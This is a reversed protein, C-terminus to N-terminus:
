DELFLKLETIFQEENEVIKGEEGPDKITLVAFKCNSDKIGFMYDSSNSKSEVKSPYILAAGKFKDKEKLSFYYSYSHLQRIDENDVDENKYTMKKFKADLVYIKGTKKHTLVFDPYNNKHYFTEDYFSIVKQSEIDWEDLNFRMLNYLYMEWLFSADILFGSIGSFSKSDSNNLDKNGLLVKAYELPKKYDSYLSNYLCKDKLIDNITKKSPRSGSYLELLHHEFKSLNPLTTNSLSIKCSKIATYLVDVINQIELQKPYKYTIKKDTSFIDNRIYEEIDVNGKISYGRDKLYVYKKPIDKFAVKRLSILFLYQILLSYISENEKANNKADIDAYIGCCSNLIRKFFVDSYDTKIELQPLKDDFNIVGCYLGTLISYDGNKNDIKYILSDEKTNRKFKSYDATIVHIFKNEDNLSAMNMNKNEIKKCIDNLAINKEDDSPSGKFKSNELFLKKSDEFSYFNTNITTVLKEVKAM